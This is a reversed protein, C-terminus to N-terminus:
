TDVWIDVAAILWYPFPMDSFQDEEFVSVIYTFDGTKYNIIHINSTTQLSFVKNCFNFYM